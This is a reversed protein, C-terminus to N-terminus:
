RMTRWRLNPVQVSTSSWVTPLRHPWTEPPSVNPARTGRGRKAQSKPYPAGQGTGVFPNCGLTPATYRAAQRQRGAAASATRTLVACQARRNQHCSASRQEGCRGSEQQTPCCQDALLKLTGTSEAGNSSGSRDSSHAQLVDPTDHASWKPV